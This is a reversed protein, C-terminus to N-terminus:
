SGAPTNKRRQKHYFDELYGPFYGRQLNMSKELVLTHDNAARRANELWQRHQRIDISYTYYKFLPAAFTHVGILNLHGDDDWWWVPGGSDGSSISRFYNTFEFLDSRQYDKVLKIDARRARGPEQGIDGIGYGAITVQKGSLDASADPIHFHFGYPLQLPKTLRIIALDQLVVRPRSFLMKAWLVGGMDLDGRKLYSRSAIYLEGAGIASFNDGTPLIIPKDFGVLVKARWIGRVCHAATLVHQADLLTGSCWGSAVTAGEDVSLRIHVTYRNLIDDGTIARDGGVALIQQSFISLLLVYLCTKQM